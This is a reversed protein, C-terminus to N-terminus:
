TSGQASPNQSPYKQKEKGSMSPPAPVQLTNLDISEILISHTDNLKKM